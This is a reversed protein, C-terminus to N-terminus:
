YPQRFSFFMYVRAPVGVGNRRAPQFTWQRAATLASDSFPAAGDLARADQVAGQDDLQVEVMVAADNMANPPYPAISIGTPIPVASQPDPAPLQPTSPAAFELMAPRYVGVVLVRSAVATGDQTAPQFKWGPLPNQILGTFPAVDQLVRSDGAMGQADVGVDIMVIGAARVGYPIADIQFGQLVAPQFAAALVVLSHTLM